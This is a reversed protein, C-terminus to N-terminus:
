ILVYQKNPIVCNTIILKKEQLQIGFEFIIIM